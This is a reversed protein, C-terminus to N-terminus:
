SPYIIRPHVAVTTGDYTPTKGAALDCDKRGILPVYFRLGRVFFTPAYGKALTAIEAADLIRDWVAVEAIKGDFNRSDDHIRGGISWSGDHSNESGSGTNTNTSGPVYGDVYLEMNAALGTSTSTAVVHQWSGSALAGAGYRSRREWLTSWHRAFTIYNLRIWLMIGYDADGSPHATWIYQDGATIDDPYVWAAVTCDNGSPDWVASYDIRDTSGNFERAM